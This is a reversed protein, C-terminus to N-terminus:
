QGVVIFRASPVGIISGALACDGRARPNEFFIIHLNVSFIKSFRLARPSQVGANQESITRGIALNLRESVWPRGILELVCQVKKPGVKNKRGGRDREGLFFCQLVYFICFCWWSQAM